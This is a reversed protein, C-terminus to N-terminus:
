GDIVYIEFEEKIPEITSFEQESFQVNDNEIVKIRWIVEISERGDSITVKVKKKGPTVFTREITDTGKVRPEHLSFSWVYDLPDADDDKVAVHFIIPEHTKVTADIVPLFDILRPKLNVNKVTITVPAVDEVFGDTVKFELNRVSKESSLGRNLIAIKSILDDEWHNNRETVEYHPPTWTFTGNELIADEPLDTMSFTVEDDDPDKATLLISVEEGENVLFNEQSVKLRPARNEKLVKINIPFSTQDKGDNATVYVTYEGVDSRKTNWVGRKSLPESFYYRIVDGDKDTATSNIKIRETATITLDTIPEFIPKQNVNNVVLNSSVEKCKDNSCAKVNIPIIKQKLFYKELRLANLTSSVVGEKRKIEDFSPTWYITKGKLVLGNPVNGLTIEIEDGDPDHVDIKWKLEKGESVSLEEPFSLFLERDINNVIITANTTITFEDDSAFINTQYEGADNYDTVWVGQDNFPESFEYKLIDGDLDQEPFTLTVTEAENVTISIPALEPQRNKNEVILSIRQKAYTVGDSATIDIGYEGSDDYGTQWQGTSNLPKEFSYTIPENDPDFAQPLINVLDTEIVTFTKQLAITAPILTLVILVLIITKNLRAM